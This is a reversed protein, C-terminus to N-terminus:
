GFRVGNEVVIRAMQPKVGLDGARGPFDEPGDWIQTQDFEGIARLAAALPSQKMQGLRLQRCFDSIPQEVFQCLCCGIQYGGGAGAAEDMDLLTQAMIRRLGLDPMQGNEQSLKQLFVPARKCFVMLSSAREM